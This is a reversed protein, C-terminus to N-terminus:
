WFCASYFKLDADKTHNKATIAADGRPRWPSPKQSRKAERELEALRRVAKSKKIEDSKQLDHKHTAPNGDPGGNTGSGNIRRVVRLPGDRIRALAEQLVRGDLDVGDGERLEAVSGTPYETIKIKVDCLDRPRATRKRKKKNPDDSKPTGSPRGKMRCDYYHTLCSKRQYTQTSRHSYVNDVWPFYTAYRPCHILVDSVQLRPDCDAGPLCPPPRRPRSFLSESKRLSFSLRKWLM